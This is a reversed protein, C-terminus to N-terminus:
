ITIVKAINQFFSRLWVQQFGWYTESFVGFIMDMAGHMVSFSGKKTGKIEFIFFASLWIYRCLKITELFKVYLLWSHNFNRATPSAIKNRESDSLDDQYCVSFLPLFSLLANKQFNVGFCSNKELTKSGGMLPGKFKKQFKCLLVKQKKFKTM